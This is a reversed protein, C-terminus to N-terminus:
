STQPRKIADVKEQWDATRPTKGNLSSGKEYGPGNSGREEKIIIGTLRWVPGEYLGWLHCATSKSERPTFCPSGRERERERLLAKFLWREGGKKNTVVPKNICRQKFPWSFCSCPCLGDPPLQHYNTPKFCRLLPFISSHIFSHILSPSFSLPRPISRHDPRIATTQNFPKQTSTSPLSLQIRGNEICLVGRSARETRKGGKEEREKTNGKVLENLRECSNGRKTDKRIPSYGKKTEQLTM